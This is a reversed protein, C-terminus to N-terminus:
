VDAAEKEPLLCGVADHVSAHLTKPILAINPKNSTVM